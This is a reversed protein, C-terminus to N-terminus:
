LSPYKEKIAQCNKDFTEKPRIQNISAIYVYEGNTTNLHIVYSQILPLETKPADPSYDKYPTFKTFDPHWVDFEEKYSMLLYNAIIPNQRMGIITKSPELSKISEIQAETLQTANYLENSKIITDLKQALLEAVTIGMTKAKALQFKEEIYEKIPMSIGKPDVFQQIASIQDLEEDTFTINLQNPKRTLFKAEM